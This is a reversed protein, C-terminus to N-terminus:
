QGDTPIDCNEDDPYDCDEDDPYNGTDDCGNIKKM